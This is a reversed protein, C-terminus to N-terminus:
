AATGAMATHLYSGPRWDTRREIACASGPM